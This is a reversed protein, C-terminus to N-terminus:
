RKFRGEVKNMPNSVTRQKELDVKRFPPRKRTTTYAMNKERNLKNSYSLVHSILFTFVLYQTPTPTTFTYFANVVLNIHRLIFVFLLSLPTPYSGRLVPIFDIYLLM